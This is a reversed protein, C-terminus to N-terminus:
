LHKGCYGIQVKQTDKDLCFYIRLNGIKLHDDMKKNIGDGNSFRRDEKRDRISSSESSSDVGKAKLCEHIGKGLSKNHFYDYGIEVLISIDKYLRDPEFSLGSTTSDLNNKADLWVELIPFRSEAFELAEKANTFEFYGDKNIQRIFNKYKKCVAISNKELEKNSTELATNQQEVFRKEAELKICKKELKEIETVTSDLLYQNEQNKLEIQKNFEQLQSAVQEAKVEAERAKTDAKDARDQADLKEQQTKFESKQIIDAAAKIALANAKAESAIQNAILVRETAQRIQIEADLKVEAAQRIQIEADLKVEAAQRIQTEAKLKILGAKRRSFYALESLLWVIIGTLLASGAIANYILTTRSIKWPNQLWRQIEATFLPPNGRLLYVRGIIKGSNQLGSPVSKTDHADKFKWEPKNPIPDRLLLFDGSLLQAPKDVEAFKKAWIEPYGSEPVLKQKGDSTTQVTTTSAYTIKQQPCDIRDSKCDTVIMGFLGYNSDLTAQIGKRDNTLLQTSLKSPLVNSLINFDVTQVRYITVEWYNKHTLYIVCLSTFSSFALAGAFRKWSSKDLPHQKAFDGFLNSLKSM